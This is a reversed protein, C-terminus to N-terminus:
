KQTQKARKPRNDTGGFKVFDCMGLLRSCVNLGYRATIDERSRANSTFFTLVRDEQWQVERDRIFDPLPLDNGYSRTQEECGLDDVILHKRKFEDVMTWFGENSKLAFTKSLVGTTIYDIECLGSIIQAATTKGTGPEGYMFLGREPYDCEGKTAAFWVSIYGTLTDFAISNDEKRIYGFKSQLVRGYHEAYRMQIEVDLMKRNRPMIKKVDFVM